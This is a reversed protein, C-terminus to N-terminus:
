TTNRINFKEQYQKKTLFNTKFYELVWESAYTDLIDRTSWNTELVLASVPVWRGGYVNGGTRPDKFKAWIWTQGDLRQFNKDITAPLGVTRGDPSTVQVWIYDKFGLGQLLAVTSREDLKIQYKSEM